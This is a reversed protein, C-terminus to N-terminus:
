DVWISEVYGRTYGGLMLHCSQNVNSIDVVLEQMACTRATASRAVCGWSAHSGTVNWGGPAIGIATGPYFDPSADTQVRWHLKSYPTFDFKSRAFTYAFDDATAYGSGSWLKLRGSSISANRYLDMNLEPLFAGDKFLYKRFSNGVGNQYVLYDVDKWSGSVYQKAATPYVQLENDKELADFAVASSSSTQFWIIGEVPENPEDNSFAWGTIPIDTNVWITNDKPNEPQPNGVVEFNLSLTVGSPPNFIM